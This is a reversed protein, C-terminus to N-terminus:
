LGTLSQLLREPKFVESPALKLLENGDADLIIVTGSPVARFRSGTKSESWPDVRVTIFQRSLLQVIAPNSFVYTDCYSNFPTVTSTSYAFVRKGQEKAAKLADHVDVIWDLVMVGKPRASSLRAAGALEFSIAANLPLPKTRFLVSNAQAVGDWLPHSASVGPEVRVEVYYDGGSDFQFEGLDIWKHANGLALYGWGDQALQRVHDGHADHVTYTVPTANAATAWTVFVHASQSAAPRYRYRAVATETLVYDGMLPRFVLKRSGVQPRPVVLGAVASKAWEHPTDTNEWRGSIEEYDQHNQGGRRPEVLKDGPNLTVHAALARTIEVGLTFIQQRERRFGTQQLALDAANQLYASASTLNGLRYAAVAQGVVARYQYRGPKKALKGFEENAAETETTGAAGAQHLYITALGFPLEDPEPPPTHGRALLRVREATLWGHQRLHRQIRAPDRSLFQAKDYPTYALAPPLATESKWDLGLERALNSQESTFKAVAQHGEAQRRADAALRANSQQLGELRAGEAILHDRTVRAETMNVVFTRGLWGVVVVLLFCSLIALRRQQAHRRHTAEAESIENFLASKVAEGALQEAQARALGLDNHAIANRAFQELLIQRQEAARHNEPALTLATALLSDAHALELYSLSRSTELTAIAEETIRLSEERKSAGSLYNQLAEAFALASAPRGGIEPSLAATCLDAVKRPIAVGPAREALPIILGKRAHEFCERPTGVAHPSTGTLVHYLTGGLLYVDTWPGLRSPNFETQEPAMYGTTGAPNTAKLVGAFPRTASSATPNSDPMVVALGWDMLFVEGYQGIMVQRPKLDRHIVGRSHAFAVAQAVSVLYPLHKALYEAYPLTQRDAHLMPRWETGRVLKMALLPRGDEDTQLDYVPVITPHDLRGTVVAEKHFAAEVQRVEEATLEDYASSRVRKVAVVRDLNLQVARWIEGQGGRAIVQELSFAKEALTEPTNPQDTRPKPETQSGFLKTPSDGLLLDALDVDHGPPEAQSEWSVDPDSPLELQDSPM